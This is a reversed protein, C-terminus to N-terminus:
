RARVNVLDHASVLKGLDRYIYIYSIFFYPRRCLEAGPTAYAWHLLGGGLFFGESCVSTIM